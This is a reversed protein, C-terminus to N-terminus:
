RRTQLASFLAVVALRDSPQALLRQGASKLLLIVAKTLPFLVLPEELRGALPIRHQAFGDRIVRGYSTWVACWWASRMFHWSVLRSWGCSKKQRRQSKTRSASPISSQATGSKTPKRMAEARTATLCAPAPPCLATRNRMVWQIVQTDKSTASTFAHPSRGPTM